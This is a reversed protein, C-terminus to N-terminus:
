SITMLRISSSKSVGGGSARGSGVTRIGTSLSSGVNLSSKTSSHIQDHGLNPAIAHGRGLSDEVIATEEEATATLMVGPNGLGPDDTPVVLMPIQDAGEALTQDDSLDADSMLNLYDDTDVGCM